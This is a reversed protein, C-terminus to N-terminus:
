SYKVTMATIKAISNIPTNLIKFLKAPSEILFHTSSVMEKVKFALSFSYWLATKGGIGEQVTILYADLSAAKATDERRVGHPTPANGGPLAGLRYVPQVACQLSLHTTSFKM